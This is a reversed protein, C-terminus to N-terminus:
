TGAETGLRKVLMLMVVSILIMVAGIVLAVDIRGVSAELFVTTPMIETKHRMTGAIMIVPGFLGFIHAWAIVGAAALSRRVMPLSVLLFTRARDAGLVMAIHEYDAPSQEFGSKMVRVAYACGAIFQVLVIGRWTYVFGITRDLVRGPPTNFFILVALGLVLPPLMIPLDMLADAIRRGPFQRRALIYGAPVAVLVALSSSLASTGLSLWVAFLVESESFARRVAAPTLSGAVAALMVAVVVVYFALPVALWYDFAQLFERKARRPM